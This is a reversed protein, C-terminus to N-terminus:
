GGLTVIFPRQMDADTIATGDNLAAEFRISLARTARDFALKLNTIAAVGPTARIARRYLTDILGLDPKQGIIQEFYPIGLRQDLFWEGLFFSLNEHLRQATYTRLDTTFRLGQSLDLDGSPGDSLLTFPTSM